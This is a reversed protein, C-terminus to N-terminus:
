AKKPEPLKSRIFIRQLLIKIVNIRIKPVTIKLLTSFLKISVTYPTCPSPHRTIPAPHQTRSAPHHTIPSPHHTCPAPHHIGPSPHIPSNQAGSSLYRQLSNLVFLPAAGSSGYRKKQSRKPSNPAPHLICSSPHRTIPSPHISSITFKTSRLLLM